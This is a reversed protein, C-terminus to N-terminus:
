SQDIPIDALMLNADAGPKFLRTWERYGDEDEEEESWRGAPIYGTSVLMGTVERQAGRLSVSRPQPYSVSENEFVLTCTIELHKRTLVARLAQPRRNKTDTMCRIYRTDKTHVLLSEPVDRVVAALWAPRYAACRRGTSAPRAPPAVARDAVRSVLM